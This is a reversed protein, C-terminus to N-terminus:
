SINFTKVICEFNICDYWPSLEFKRTNGQKRTNPSEPLTKGFTVTVLLGTSDTLSPAPATHFPRFGKNEDVM